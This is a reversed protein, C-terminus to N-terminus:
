KGNSLWAPLTKMCFAISATFPAPNSWSWVAAIKSPLARRRSRSLLSQRAGDTLLTRDDRRAQHRTGADAVWRTPIDAPRHDRRRTRPARRLVQAGAAVAGAPDM